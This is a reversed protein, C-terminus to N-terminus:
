DLKFDFTNSGGATVEATLTTKVNYKAPIREKFQTNGPDGPIEESQVKAGKQDYSFISVKYKGPVLGNDRPIQYRGNEITAGSETPGPEVPAFHIRGQDLVQGKFYVTGSVAQRGSSDGCGGALLFLGCATLAIRATTRRMLLVGSRSLPLGVVRGTPHRKMIM